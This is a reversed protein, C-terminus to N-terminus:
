AKAVTLCDPRRMAARLAIILAHAKAEAASAFTAGSQIISSGAMRGRSGRLTIMPYYDLGIQRSAPHFTIM